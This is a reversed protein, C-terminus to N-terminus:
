CTYSKWRQRPQSSCDSDRWSRGGTFTYTEFIYSTTDTSSAESLTTNFSYKVEPSFLGLLDNAEKQTKPVLIKTDAAFSDYRDMIFSKAVPINPYEISVDYWPKSDKYVEITVPTVTATTTATTTAVPVESIPTVPVEKKPAKLFLVYGAVLLSLLALFVIGLILYNKTEPKEEPLHGLEKIAEELQRVEDRLSNIDEENELITPEKEM